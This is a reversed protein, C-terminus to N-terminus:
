KHPELGIDVVVKSTSTSGDNHVRQLVVHDVSVGAPAQCELAPVDGMGKTDSGRTVQKNDPVSCCTLRGIVRTSRHRIQMQM